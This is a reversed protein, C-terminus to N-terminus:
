APGAGARAGAMRAGERLGFVTRLIVRLTIRQMGPLAPVARGGALPRDGRRRARADGDGYVRMREGHFPRLLLKRRSLHEDEDLVLVSHPGVLPGLVANGEGAHLRAPSGTFISRVEAPDAVVVLPDFGFSDVAFVDGYRRRYRELMRHETLLM